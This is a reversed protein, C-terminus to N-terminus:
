ADANDKPCRKETCWESKIFWMGGPKIGVKEPLRSCYLDACRQDIKHRSKPADDRFVPGYKKKLEELLTGQWCATGFSATSRFIIM